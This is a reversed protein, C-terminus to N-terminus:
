FAFVGLLTKARVELVVDVLFRGLVTAIEAPVWIEVDPPEGRLLLVAPLLPLGFVPRSHSVKVDRLEYVFSRKLVALITAFRFEVEVLVFRPGSVVVHTAFIYLFVKAKVVAGQLSHKMRILRLVGRCSLWHEGLQLHGSVEFGSFTNRRQVSERVRIEDVILNRFISIDYVGIALRQDEIDLGTRYQM